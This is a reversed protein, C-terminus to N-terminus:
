SDKWATGVRREESRQRKKLAGKVAPQHRYSWAAEILLRRVHRNGTKTINGLKRLNGSSSESPVLGTYAMFEKPSQFREFSGVEAVLSTATIVAVGRLTMLIQIM